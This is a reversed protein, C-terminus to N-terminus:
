PYPTGDKHLYASALWGSISMPITHRTAECM